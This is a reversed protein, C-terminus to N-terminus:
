SNAQDGYELGIRFAKGVMFPAFLLRSSELIRKVQSVAYKSEGTIALVELRGNDLLRVVFDVEGYMPTIQDNSFTLLSSLQNQVGQVDIAYSTTTQTKPEAANVSSAAFMFVSTLLIILTKM